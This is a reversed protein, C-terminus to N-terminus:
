KGAAKGNCNAMSLASAGVIYAFMAGAGGEGGVGGNAEAAM